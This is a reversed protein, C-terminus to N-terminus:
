ERKFITTTKLRDSGVKSPLLTILDMRIDPFQDELEIFKKIIVRNSYAFDDHEYIIVLRIENEELVDNEYCVQKIFDDDFATAIIPTM